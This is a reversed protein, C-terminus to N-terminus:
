ILRSSRGAANEAEPERPDDALVLEQLWRLRSESLMEDCMEVMLRDLGARHRRLLAADIELGAAAAHNALRAAPDMRELRPRMTATGGIAPARAREVRVRARTKALAVPAIGCLDPDPVFYYATVTSRAQGIRHLRGNRQDLRVPNWPIDYHIVSGACQLNLGESAVDTAVLLDIRGRRFSDIALDTDRRSAGTAVGAPRLRALARQIARATALSTTFILAPERLSEVLGLLHGPKSSPSARVLRTLAALRELEEEVPGPSRETSADIFASWFLVQQMPGDNVEANFLRSFERRTLARGQRLADMARLYFREQRRISDLLAEDSSQWRYLFLRRLLTPDDLLPFRLERIAEGIAEVGPSLPYTIRHRALTGFQLDPPVVDRDRRIVLERLAIAIAPFDRREFAADISPLGRPQLADDAAALALLARLDDVRNCIPTATILLVDAAISRRALADYRLTSPNRFAHAEDVILLRQASSPVYPCLRLSEHSLLEADVEAERLFERWQPLLAAPATIEVRLGEGGARRALELAILTKGTGPADALLAGRYRRLMSEILAVASRQHEVLM